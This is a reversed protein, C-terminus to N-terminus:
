APAFGGEDGVGTSLETAKLISRLAHFIEIGARVGRQVVPVRAAHGHVGPLRRELRTAGGNLINMMPVAAYRM